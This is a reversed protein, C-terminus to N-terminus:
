KTFLIRKGLDTLYKELEKNSFTIDLDAGYAQWAHPFCNEKYFIINEKSIFFYKENAEKNCKAFTEFIFASDEAFLKEDDRRIENIREKIKKDREEILIKKIQGIGEKTFIDKASIPEGNKSNFNFYRQYYTPYAGMGEIEFTVSLIKSNNIEIHYSMSTYGSQSISNNSIYRRKDFLKNEPTKSITTEFFETQLYDNIKKAAVKNESIFVPFVFDKDQKNKIERHRYQSFCVSTFLFLLFLLGGKVRLSIM